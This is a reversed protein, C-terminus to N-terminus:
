YLVKELAGAKGYLHIDEDLATKFENSIARDEKTQLVELAKDVDKWYDGNYISQANHKVLYLKCLYAMHAALPVSIANSDAGLKNVINTCLEIINNPDQKRESIFSNQICKKMNSHHCDFKGCAYSKVAKNKTHDDKNRNYGSDTDAALNRAFKTMGNLYAPLRPDLLTKVVAAKIAIQLKKPMNYVSEAPEIVDCTERLQLIWRCLWIRQEEESAGAFKRLEQESDSKLKIKQSVAWVTQDMDPPLSHKGLTLMGSNVLSGSSGSGGLASQAPANFLGLVPSSSLDHGPRVSNAPSPTGFLGNGSGDLSGSPRNTSNTHSQPSEIGPSHRTDGTLFSVSTRSCDSDPAMFNSRSYPVERISLNNSSYDNIALSSPQTGALPTCVIGMAEQGPTDLDLAM